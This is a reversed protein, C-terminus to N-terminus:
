GRWNLGPLTWSASSTIVTVAAEFRWRVITRKLCMGAVKPTYVLLWFCFGALCFAVHLCLSVCVFICCPADTYLCWSGELSCRGCLRRLEWSLQYWTRESKDNVYSRRALPNRRQCRPCRNCCPETYFRNHSAPEVPLVWGVRSCRTHVSHTTDAPLDKHIPFSFKIRVLLHSQVPSCSLSYQHLKDKLHAWVTTRLLLHWTTVKKAAELSENFKLHLILKLAVFDASLCLM